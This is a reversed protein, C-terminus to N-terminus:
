VLCGQIARQRGKMNLGDEEAGSLVVTAEKEGSVVSM